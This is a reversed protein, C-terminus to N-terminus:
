TMSGGISLLFCRFAEDKQDRRRLIDKALSPQHCLPVLAHQYQVHLSILFSVDGWSAIDEVQPPRNTANPGLRSIDTAPATVSSLPDSPSAFFSIPSQGIEYLFQHLDDFNGQGESGTDTPFVNARPFQNVPHGIVDALDLPCPSSPLNYDFSFTAPSALTQRASGFFSQPLVAERAPLSPPM